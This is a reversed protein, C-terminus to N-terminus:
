KLSNYYGWSQAQNKQDLFRQNENQESMLKPKQPIKMKKFPIVKYTKLRIETKNVLFPFFKKLYYSSSM